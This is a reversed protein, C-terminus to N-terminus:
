LGTRQDAPGGNQAFSAAVVEDIHSEPALLEGSGHEDDGFASDNALEVFLPFDRFPDVNFYTM